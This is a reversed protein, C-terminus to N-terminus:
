TVGAFECANSSNKTNQIQRSVLCRVFIDISVLDCKSLCVFVFFLVINKVRLCVFWGGGV